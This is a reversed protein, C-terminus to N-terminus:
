KARPYVGRKLHPCSTIVLFMIVCIFDWGKHFVMGESFLPTEGFKSNVHGQYFVYGENLIIFILINLLAYTLVLKKLFLIYYM